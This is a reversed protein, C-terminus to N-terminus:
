KRRYARSNIFEPSSKDNGCFSAESFSRRLPRSDMSGRKFDAIGRLPNTRSPQHVHPSSVNSNDSSSVLGLILGKRNMFHNYLFFCYIMRNEGKCVVVSESQCFQSLMLFYMKM